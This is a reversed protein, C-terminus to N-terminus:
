RGSGPSSLRLVRSPAEPDDPQLTQIELWVALARASENAAELAMALRRMAGIREAETGHAADAGREFWEIARGLDPVEEYLDGLAVSAEALVDADHAAREFAAVAQDTLGAALYTRGLALQQRGDVDRTTAAKMRFEDFVSELPPESTAADPDGDAAPVIAETAGTAAPPGAPTLVNLARTLDLEVPARPVPPPSVARAVALAHPEGPVAEEALGAVTAGAPSWGGDSAGEGQADVAVPDVDDGDGLAEPEDFEFLADIAADPDPEGLGELVRRLRGRHTEQDPDRLLLDEAVVRAERLMGRVVYAEALAEQAANLPAELDGDMCVDILRLLPAIEAPHDALFERLFSAALEFERGAVAADVAAEVPIFRRDAAVGPLERGLRVAETRSSPDSALWRGLAARAAEPTGDRLAVEAAIRLLVPDDGVFDPTLLEAAAAIDGGNLLERALEARRGTSDPAIAVLERLVSVVDAKRGQERLQEVVGALWEAGRSDGARVLVRAGELRAGLDKPDLEALRLLVEDAGQGNGRRRRADAIGSFLAKAEVALGQAALAEALHLTPAEENPTFKLVKRFFGAAKSYFGERLYVDGVRM